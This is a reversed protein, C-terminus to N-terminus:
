EGEGLGQFDGTQEKDRYIYNSQVNGIVLVMFSTVKQAQNRATPINESNMETPAHEHRKIASDYDM